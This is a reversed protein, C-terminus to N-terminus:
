GAWGAASRRHHLLRSACAGKGGAAQSGVDLPPWHSQNGDLQGHITNALSSDDKLQATCALCNKNQKEKLHTPKEREETRFNGDLPFQHSRPIETGPRKAGGQRTEGPTTSTPTQERPFRPRVIRPLNRPKRNSRQSPERHTLAPTTRPDNEQPRTRHKWENRIKALATREEFDTPIVFAKIIARPDLVSVSLGTSEVLLGRQTRLPAFDHVWKRTVKYNHKKIFATAM